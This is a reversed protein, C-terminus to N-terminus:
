FAKSIEFTKPILKFLEALLSDKISHDINWAQDCFDYQVVM